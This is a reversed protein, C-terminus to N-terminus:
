AATPPRGYLWNGAAEPDSSTFYEVTAQELESKDIVGNGDRDLRLFSEEIETRSMKPSQALIFGAYEDPQIVGDGNIDAVSMVSDILEGSVEEFLEPRAFLGRIATLFSDRRVKGEEDAHPLQVKKWASRYADVLKQEQSSGTAYNFEQAARQGMLIHDEETLVGDGDADLLDFYHTMKLTVFDTASM